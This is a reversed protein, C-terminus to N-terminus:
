GDLRSWYNVISSVYSYSMGLTRSIASVTHGDDHLRRCLEVIDPSYRSLHHNVGSKRLSIGLSRAKDKISNETRKLGKALEAASLVTAYKKLFAEEDKTWEIREVQIYFALSVKRKSAIHRLYNIPIGYSDAIDQAPRTGAESFAAELDYKSTIKSGM